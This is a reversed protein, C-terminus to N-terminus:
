PTSGLSKLAAIESGCDLSNTIKSALVAKYYTVTATNVTAQSM